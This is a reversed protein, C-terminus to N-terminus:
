CQFLLIYKNFASIFPKGEKGKDDSYKHCIQSKQPDPSHCYEPFPTLEGNLTYDPKLITCRGASTGLTPDDFDFNQIAGNSLFKRHGLGNISFLGHDFSFTSM